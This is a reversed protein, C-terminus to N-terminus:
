LKVMKKVVRDHITKIEIFYIGQSFSGLDIQHIDKRELLLQGNVDFLAVEFHNFNTHLYLTKQVPNPSLVVEMEHDVSMVNTPGPFGQRSFVIFSPTDNEKDFFSLIDCYTNTCNTSTNSITLCVEYFGSSQYTHTPLSDTSTTGDGFDWFFDYNESEKVLNTININVQNSTDPFHYFAAVCCDNTPECNYLEWLEWGHYGDSAVLFLNDNYKFFHIPNSSMPGEFFDKLLEPPDSENYKWFERGNNVNDITLYLNGEFSAMTKSLPLSFFVDPEIVFLLTPMNVGDYRWLETGDINNVARFYLADNHVTFDTFFGSGTVASLDVALTPTNNGDYRWLSNAVSGSKTLFFLQNSFSLFSTPESGEIGPDLDAVLEPSTSGDYKWLEKGTTSDSCTFFLEDNFVHFDHPRSGNENPWIDAFLSPPDVGDYMWLEAGEEESYGRFYLKGQFEIIYNWKPLLDFPDFGTSLGPVLSPSNTNDYRWLEKGNVGTKFLYLDDNLGAMETLDPITDICIPRNQGDFKWLGYVTPIQFLSSPLYIETNFYLNDNITLFNFPRSGENFKNIDSVFKPTGVGDYEWFEYGCNDSIGGFFLKDNYVGPSAGAFVYEWGPNADVILEPSNNGDYTWLGVGSTGNDATFYLKNQFTTLAAPSSSASGQNIDSIMIPDNVGDYEWLETGYSDHSAPFYLKGNLESFFYGNQLFEGESGDLVPILIMWWLLHHIGMM